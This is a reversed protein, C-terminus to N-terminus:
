QIRILAEYRNGGSKKPDANLTEVNVFRDGASLFTKITDIALFYYRGASLNQFVAQGIANTTVTADYAAFNLLTDNTINAKMYVTANPVVTDKYTVNVLVTGNISEKKGCSTAVILFVLATGILFSRM